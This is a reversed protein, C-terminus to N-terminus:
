RRRNKQGPRMQAGHYIGLIVLADEAVDLRYVIIYPFSSVGFERTGALAEHGILPLATLLDITKRIREGARKAAAPSRENL